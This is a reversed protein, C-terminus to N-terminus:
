GQVAELVKVILILTAQDLRAMSKKIKDRVDLDADFGVLSVKLKRRGMM